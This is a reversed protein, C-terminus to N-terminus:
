RPFQRMRDGIPLLRGAPSVLPLVSNVSSSLASLLNTTCMRLRNTGISADTAPMAASAALLVHPVYTPAERAPAGRAEARVNRKRGRELSARHGDEREGAVGDREGAHRQEYPPSGSSASSSQITPSASCLAAIAASKAAPTCPPASM